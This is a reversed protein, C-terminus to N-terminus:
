RQYRTLLYVQICPSKNWINCHLRLIETAKEKLYKGCDAQTVMCLKTVAGVKLMELLVEKRASFKCISTLIHVGRDDTAPSVRLIRKSVIAIAGAHRLFQFRGDVCSCLQALLNFILETINKEPKGLELEILEFVANAEIIKMRNRGRPCVEILINLASKAAHQFMNERLLSVMKQFFELNLNESLTTTAVELVIKLVLMANTKLAAHNDSELQLVWTLSDIFENNKSVIVRNENSPIWVLCLIKLAEELGATKRDNYCRLILCVLGKVVAPIEMSKRNRESETALAEMKKLTSLCLHAVQLDRVLQLLYGKSPPSKPTTIREVGNAANQTCWAQILRRLTHNSTLGSDGLLPQKTVPCTTEKGTKLWQEISERDYSIGTITTVPDKMIQLSIPCLFFQPVEIQDM